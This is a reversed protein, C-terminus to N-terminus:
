RTPCLRQRIQELQHKYSHDYHHDGIRLRFGGILKPNVKQECEVTRHTHRQIRKTLRDITDEDVPVATEFVVRDIEHYERFMDRYIFIIMRLQNERRNKLLLWIFRTYLTTAEPDLGSALLLLAYKKESSVRPNILAILLDPEKKMMAYLMGFHKYIQEDVFQERAEEFLAKAYRKAISGNNM